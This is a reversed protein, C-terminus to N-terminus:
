LPIPSCWRRASATWSGRMPRPLAADACILRHPGIQWLHGPRTGAHGLAQPVADAPDPKSAGPSWPWPDRSGGRPGIAQSGGRPRPRRHDQRGPRGPHIKSVSRVTARRSQAIQKPSHTRANGDDSKLDGPQRYEITLSLM